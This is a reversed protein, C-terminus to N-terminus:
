SHAIAQQNQGAVVGVTLGDHMDFPVINVRSARQRLNLRHGRLQEPPDLPKDFGPGRHEARPRQLRRAQDIIGLAIPFYGAQGVFQPALVGAAVSAAFM